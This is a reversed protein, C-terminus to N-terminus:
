EIDIMDQSDFMTELEVQKIYQNGNYLWLFMKKDEAFALMIRIADKPIDDSECYRELAGKIFKPVFLSYGKFDLRVGLVELFTLVKKPQYEKYIIYEADGNEGLKFILQMKTKESQYEKANRDLCKSTIDTFKELIYDIM